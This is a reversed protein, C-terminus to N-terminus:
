LELQLVLHGTIYKKRKLQAAAIQKTTPYNSNDALKCFSYSDQGIFQQVRNM